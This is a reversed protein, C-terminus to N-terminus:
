TPPAAADARVGAETVGQVFVPKGLKTAHDYFIVHFDAGVVRSVTIPAPIRM